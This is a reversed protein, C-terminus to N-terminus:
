DRPVGSRVHRHQETDPLDRCSRTYIGPVARCAGARALDEGLEASLDTVNEGALRATNRDAVKTGIDAQAVPDLENLSFFDPQGDDMANRTAPQFDAAAIRPWSGPASPDHRKGSIYLAYLDDRTLSSSAVTARHLAAMEEFTLDLNSWGKEMASLVHDTFTALEDAPTNDLANRFNRFTRAAEDSLRDAERAVFGDILDRAQEPTMGASAALLEPAKANAIMALALGREANDDAATAARKADFSSLVESWEFRPDSNILKRTAAITDGLTYSAGEPLINTADSARVASDGITAGSADAAGRVGNRALLLADLGDFLIGGVSLLLGLDDETAIAVAVEGAQAAISAAFVIRGFPAALGGAPNVLIGLVLSGFQLTTVLTDFATKDALSGLNTLIERRIFEPVVQDEPDAGDDLLLFNEWDRISITGDATTTTVADIDDIYERLYPEIWVKFNFQAIDDQTVKGRVSGRDVPIEGRAIASGSSAAGSIMNFAVPNAVLQQALSQLEPLKAKNAESLSWWNLWMSENILPAADDDDAPLAEPVLSAYAPPVDSPDFDAIAILYRSYLPTQSWPTVDSSLCLSDILMCSMEALDDRAEQLADGLAQERETIGSEEFPDQSTPVPYLFEQVETLFSLRGLADDYETAVLGLAVFDNADADPQLELAGIGLIDNLAAISRTVEVPNLVDVFNAAQIVSRFDATVQAHVSQRFIEADAAIETPISVTIHGPLITPTTLRGFTHLDDVENFTYGTSPRVGQLLRLHVIDHALYPEWNNGGGLTRKLEGSYHLLEDVPVTYPNWNIRNGDPDEGLVTFGAYDAEGCAQTSRVALLPLQGNSRTVAIDFTGDPLNPITLEDEGGVPVTLTGDFAFISSSPDLATIPFDDSTLPDNHEVRVVISNSNCFVSSIQIVDCDAVTVPQVDGVAPGNVTKVSANYSGNGVDRVLKDGTAGAEVDVFIIRTTTGPEADELRLEYTRTSSESTNTVSFVADGTGCESSVAFSDAAVQVCTTSSGAASGAGTQRVTVCVNGTAGGISVSGGDPGVSVTPGVKEGDATVEVESGSPSPPVKAEPVGDDNEEIEAEDANTAEEIVINLRSCDETQVGDQAKMLCDFIFEGDRFDVVGDWNVDRDFATSCESNPASGIVEIIVDNSGYAAIDTFDVKGDCNTDGWDHPAPVCVDGESRPQPHFPHNQGWYARRGEGEYWTQDLWTLGSVNICLEAVNDALHGGPVNSYRGTEFGYVTSIPVLNGNKYKAWAKWEYCDRSYEVVSWEWRLGGDAAKLEVDTPFEM